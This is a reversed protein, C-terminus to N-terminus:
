FQKSSLIWVMAQLTYNALM